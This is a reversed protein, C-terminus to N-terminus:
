WKEFVLIEKRNPFVFLLLIENVMVGFHNSCQRTPVRSILLQGFALEVAQTLLCDFPALSRRKLLPWNSAPPM